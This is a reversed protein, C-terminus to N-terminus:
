PGPAGIPEPAGGYFVIGILVVLILMSVWMTTTLGVLYSVGILGAKTDRPKGTFWAILMIYVPVLIIAFIIYTGENAFGTWGQTGDYGHYLLQLPLTALSM